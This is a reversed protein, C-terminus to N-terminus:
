SVQVLQSSGVGANVTHDLYQLFRRYTRNDSRLSKVNWNYEILLFLARDASVDCEQVIKLIKKKIESTEGNQLIM